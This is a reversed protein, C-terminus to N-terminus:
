RGVAQGAWFALGKWGYLAFAAAALGAPCALWWVM